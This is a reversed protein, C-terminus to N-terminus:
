SLRLGFTMIEAPRAPIRFWGDSDPQIETGTTELIDSAYLSVFPFVPRFSLMGAEDSLHIWRLFLNGNEESRKCATLEFGVSEQELFSHRCPLPGNHLPIQCVLLDSQFRHAEAPAMSEALNGSFPIISLESESIGLCQADPTPFYGWDGMEGVSRLLTIALTNGQDPLLEYEYNGRNAITLGVKGDGVATFAQQHQCNSPNKWSSAPRNPRKVLEFVSDAWHADSVLDTPFLMRVRHDKMQNDFRCFVDLRGANRSLTLTVTAVLTMKKESRGATRELFPVMGMQEAALRSDASIPIQLQHIIQYEAVFPTDRVLRIEASKGASTIACMGSDQRYIYENGIDGTDELVCLDQYMMGTDKDTLTVSGDSLIRIHLRDNEMCNPEPILSPPANRRIVSVEPFITASAATSAKGFGDTSRVLLFCRYGLGPVRDAEFTVCVKRAVHPQRFRDDPLEYCFHAGSDTTTCPVETGEEDVLIWHGFPIESADRYAKGLDEAPIRLWDVEVSVLGTAAKGTTNMVLVPHCSSDTRAMTGTRQMWKRVLADSDIASAIQGLAERVLTEGVEASKAFRTAMERNVADVSCGCISDHPHNQMLTRWAHRLWGNPYTGYGLLSSLASLPEAQRELLLQVYHNRRKLSAHTSCTNVLTFWGDTDQSTLEGRIVSWDPREAALVTKAYEQPVTHRFTVDPFLERAIRLAEPLNKQLPQHDCGNMFLLHPTSAYQGADRLKALWWAQAMEPESPIEMGNNYWNAFFIGPMRSGDPSEWYLESWPSEYQGSTEGKMCGTARIGRGFLIAEMGAQRMLQPMQGANGFADPFYGIKSCDGFEKAIRMGTQLNRITAEGSVLFEDQLIYWPGVVLRGERIHRVIEERREPRVELYDELPITQGDLFFASFGREAKFADLLDDMLRVLRFRHQEFPMYWERDWHTHSVIHATTPM